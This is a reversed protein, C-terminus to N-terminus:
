AVDSGSDALDSPGIPRKAPRAPPAGGPHAELDAVKITLRDIERGLAHRISYRIASDVQRAVEAIPLGHAVRLRLSIKLGGGRLSVRLGAPVVGGAFGAVGYQGLTVGRVIDAIARRTVLARGPTSEDPL